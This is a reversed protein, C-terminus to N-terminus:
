PVFDFVLLNGVAHQVSSVLFSRELAFVHIEHISLDRTFVKKRVVIEDERFGSTVIIACVADRTGHQRDGKVVHFQRGDVSRKHKVRRFVIGLSGALRQVFLHHFRSAHVLSVVPKDVLVNQVVKNRSVLLHEPHHAVFQGSGRSAFFSRGVDQREKKSGDAPLIRVVAGLGVPHQLLTCARGVNRNNAVQQAMPEGIVSDSREGDVTQTLDLVIINQALIQQLQGLAQLSFQVVIRRKSREQKFPGDGVGQHNSM